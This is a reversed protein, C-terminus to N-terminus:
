KSMQTLKGKLNIAFNPLSNIEQIETQFLITLNPVVNSPQDKDPNGLNLESM